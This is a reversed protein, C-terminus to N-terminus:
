FIFLFISMPWHPPVAVTGWGGGGVCVSNNTIVPVAFGAAIRNGSNTKLPSPPLVAGAEGILEFVSLPHTALM